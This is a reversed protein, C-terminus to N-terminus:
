SITPDWTEYLLCCRKLEASGIRFRKKVILCTNFHSNNQRNIEYAHAIQYAREAEYLDDQEKALVKLEQESLMAPDVDSRDFKSPLQRQPRQELFAKVDSPKFLLRGTARTATLTGRSVWNYVTQRAVKCLKAVDTVDYYDEKVQSPTAPAEVSSLLSDLKTSINSLEDLLHTLTTQTEDTNSM